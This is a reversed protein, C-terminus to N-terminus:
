FYSKKSKSKKVLKYILTILAALVVITGLLTLGYLLKNASLLDRTSISPYLNYTKTIGRESLTVTGVSSNSNLKWPNITSVNQKILKETDNLKNKYYVINKDLMLNVNVTKTPGFLKFPKYSVKVSNYATNKNYLTTPLNAYSYNILNGMDKFVQLDKPDDQSKMVVGIIKKGNRNYLAILCRGAKSTSGTKGGICTKDYVPQKPDLIKNTNTLSLKVKDETYADSKQKSITDYIWKNKFAVKALKSMDYATSYHNDDHLGNPTVFHTSKLGLAQVEKNMITSFSNKTEDTSDSIKGLINSAITYAMDNGSYILLGQMVTDASMKQGVTLPHINKSISFEPQEKASNSYQLIDSPKKNKTLLLATLLKTTSAPYIKEDPNKSYIVEGTDADISIATQGVINPEPNANTSAAFTTSSISFILTFSILTSLFKHKLTM